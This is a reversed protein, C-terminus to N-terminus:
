AVMLFDHFTIAPHHDLVAFEIAPRPGTGDPDFYLAGTTKNYIIRDGAAHAKTAHAAEYFSLATIKIPMLHGGVRSEFIHRSLGIKDLGHVFNTIHDLNTHANLATDFAFTDGAPGGTLTDHGGKGDLTGYVAGGLLSDNGPTGTAVGTVTITLTNSVPNGYGDDITYTFTDHVQAGVALPQTHDAVYSYSGGSNITLTGKAGVLAAGVTGAGNAGTIGTVTLAKGNADTDPVDGGTNGIIVNGSTTAYEPVAHTDANAVAAGNASLIQAHVTNNTGDGNTGVQDWTVVFENSGLSGLPAVKPAVLGSFGKISANTTITFEGGSKTGDANFVQGNISTTDAAHVWVVVFQGNGLTAVSAAETTGLNDAGATFATGVPSGNGAYLQADVATGEDWVVVFAGNALPAVAPALASFDTNVTIQAGPHGHADFMQAFIGSTGFYDWTAVFGGGSLAAIAPTQTTSGSVAGVQFPGAPDAGGSASFVEGGIANDGAGGESNGVLWVAAFGGATVGGTLTTLSPWDGTTTMPIQSGTPNFIQALVSNANNFDTWAMAFTNSALGTLGVQFDGAVAGTAIQSGDPTGSAKFLQAVVDNNVFNNVSIQSLWAVVFGGGSLAAVEPSSQNDTTDTSVVIESGVLTVM